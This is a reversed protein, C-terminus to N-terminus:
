DRPASSRYRYLAFAFVLCLPVLPLAADFPVLLFVVAAVVVFELAYLVSFAEFPTAM